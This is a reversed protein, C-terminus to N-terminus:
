LLVRNRGRRKAVYLAQDARGFAASGTDTSLISTAGISVTVQGVQPFPYAAMAARIREVAALADELGCNALMVVFKAGGFRFLRDTDRFTKRMLGALLVLAEDGFPHGFRDNIQKFFDIEVVGLHARAGNADGARRGVAGKAEMAAQRNFQDDFTRRKALRTLDDLDGYDLATLRSRYIRLIGSLLAIRDRDLDTETEVEILALVEAGRLVPLICVGAQGMQRRLRVMRRSGYALALPERAAALPLEKDRPEASEQGPLAARRKLWAGDARPVIRWYSRARAGGLDFIVRALTLELSERDREAILGAVSHTIDAM